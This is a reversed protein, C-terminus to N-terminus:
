DIIKGFEDSIFWIIFIDLRKEPHLEKFDNFKDFTIVDFVFSKDYMNSLQVENFSRSIDLKLKV